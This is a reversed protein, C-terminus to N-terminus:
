GAIKATEKSVTEYDPEVGPNDSVWKFRITLDKDLVYVARKSANYGKIGAFNEQVNGFAKVADRNYDSLLTFNLNNASKFAKNAFPSDVSIGVVNANLKNYQALSDRITCMEKTCVGTFAGPYFLLVTPKGKFSSIRVPVRETDVLEIEPAKDGVEVM